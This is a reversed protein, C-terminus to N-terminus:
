QLESTHEESRLLILWVLLGLEGITWIYYATRIPFKAIPSFILAIIPPSLYPLLGSEFNVNGMIEQQYRAQLDLDYLKAGDGDLVMKFGTYSNTFDAAIFLNQHAALFWVGTNILILSINILLLFVIIFYFPRKRIRAILPENPDSSVDQLLNRFM